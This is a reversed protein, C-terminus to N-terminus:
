VILCVINEMLLEQNRFKRGGWSDWSAAISFGEAENLSDLSPRGLQGTSYEWAAGSGAHDTTM